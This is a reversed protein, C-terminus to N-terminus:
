ENNAFNLEQNLNILKYEKMQNYSIAISEMPKFKSIIEAKDKDGAIFLSTSLIEAVIPSDAVVSVTKLEKQFKGTLPNIIHGNAGYKMQNNPNNGSTSLSSNNLQFTYIPSGASFSHQIGIPWYDGHPHSGLTTISSDGFSILANTIHNEACYQRIKELAYGKGIGGLDISIRTDQFFVTSGDFDLIINDAGPSANESLIRQSSLMSDPGTESPFPDSGLITYRGVTIDFLQNTSTYYEKCLALLSITESDTPFPEMAALKNIKSIESNDNYRTFKQEIRELENSIFTKASSFFAEDLGYTLFNFRTGMSSCNFHQIIIPSSSKM